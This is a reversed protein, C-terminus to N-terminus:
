KNWYHKNMSFMIKLSQPMRTHSLGIKYGSFKMLTRVLAEPIRWPANKLLYLFESRIFRFGEGEPKGFDSLLWRETEHMVGMDFYRQFEQKLTYDHSHYVCADHQYAVKFGKKLAQAAVLMDEGFIVNSKFGAISQLATVRYASFSNSNFAAKLGVKNKDEYTYNHSQESYNFLRAHAEIPTANEKPLQRGYAIAVEDDNFAEILQKISNNNELLADQTLFVVIDADGTYELASQRTAGHDFDSQEITFIKFGHQSSQEVSGDTSTSDIIIKECFQVSQDDVTRLWCSWSGGPNLVPVVVSVKLNENQM